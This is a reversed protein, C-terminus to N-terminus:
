GIPRYVGRSPVSVIRDAELLYGTLRGGYVCGTDLGLSHPRRDQLGRVADHGYLVLPPGSWREWWFPADPGGDMPWRRMSVAQTRTTGAVGGVPDVGGHVVAWAMPETGSITLPLARLWTVAPAPALHEGHESRDIVVLDHNGLVSEASLRRVLDWTETPKPGKNFVDGVLITRTPAAADILDSLEDACAHVDGVILTTM